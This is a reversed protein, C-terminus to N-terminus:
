PVPRLDLLAYFALLCRVWPSPDRLAPALQVGGGSFAWLALREPDLGLEAAHGRMWSAAAALNEASGEFDHWGRHFHNCAVAVLGSAALLEGYSQFVGMNKMVGHAQPPVPGGHLLLVGPAPAEKARTEAPPLFLDLTLRTGEVERYVLDRRAEVRDMGPRALVVRKRYIDSNM